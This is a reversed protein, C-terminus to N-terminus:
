FEDIIFVYIDYKPDTIYITIIIKDTPLKM